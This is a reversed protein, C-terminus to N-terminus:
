RLYLNVDRNHDKLTTNPKFVAAGNDTGHLFFLYDRGAENQRVPHLIAELAEQGPNSIPGLPLGMRTYTNWPHDKKMDGHVADLDPLDKGLGYAVTPDSQLPISQELRNRFVGAIIPMEEFNAAESQIISALIVWDNISLNEDKLLRLNEISLNQEFRVLMQKVVDKADSKVPFDYSAPFLYGELSADEPLYDPRIGDANTMIDLVEDKNWLNTEAIREVIDKLRFGEPILVKTTRPKGGKTLAAAIEQMKMSPSLSYLGEGISRDIKNFRLYYSFVMANRILGLRELENAIKNAGWGSVVEFEVNNALQNSVLTSTQMAKFQNDIYLNLGLAGSVVFLLLILFIRLFRRKKKKPKAKSDRYASNEGSNPSDFDFPDFEIKKLLDESSPNDKKM